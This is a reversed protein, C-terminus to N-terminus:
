HILKIVKVKKAFVKSISFIKLNVDLTILGFCSIIRVTSGEAIGKSIFEMKLESNEEFSVIRAFTGSTLQNLMTM